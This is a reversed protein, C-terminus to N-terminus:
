ASRLSSHHRSSCDEPAPTRCPFSTEASEPRAHASSRRSSAAFGSIDIIGHEASVAHRRGHTMSLRNSSYRSFEGAADSIATDVDKASGRKLWQSTSNEEQLYHRLHGGDVALRAPETMWLSRRWGWRM